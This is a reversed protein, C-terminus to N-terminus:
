MEKGFVPSIKMPLLAGQVRCCMQTAWKWGEHSTNLSILMHSANTDSSHYNHSLNREEVVPPFAFLKILMNRHILAM